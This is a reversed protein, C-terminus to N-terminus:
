RIISRVIDQGLTNGVKTGTKNIYLSYENMVQSDSPCLILSKSHQGFQNSRM